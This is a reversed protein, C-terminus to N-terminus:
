PQKGLWDSTVALGVGLHSRHRGRRTRGRVGIGLDRRISSARGPFSPVATATHGAAGMDTKASLHVHAGPSARRPLEGSRIGASSKDLGNKAVGIVIRSWNGRRRSGLTFAIDSVIRRVDRRRSDLTAKRGSRNWASSARWATVRHEHIDRRIHEDGRQEEDLLAVSSVFTAASLGSQFHHPLGRLAITDSGGVRRRRDKLELGLGRKM